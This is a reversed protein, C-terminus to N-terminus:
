NLAATCKNPTTLSAAGELWVGFVYIVNLLVSHLTTSALVFVLTRKEKQPFASKKCIVHLFLYKMFLRFVPYRPTRKIYVDNKQTDYIHFIQLYHYSPM